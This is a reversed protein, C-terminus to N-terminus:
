ATKCGGWEVSDESHVIGVADSKEPNGGPPQSLDSGSPPLGRRFGEFALKEHRSTFGMGLEIWVPRGYAHVIRQKAIVTQPLPNLFQDGRLLGFM